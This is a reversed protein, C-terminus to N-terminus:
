NGFWRTVIIKISIKHECTIVKLYAEEAKKDLLYFIIHIFLDLANKKNKSCRQLEFRVFFAWYTNKRRELSMLSFNFIM